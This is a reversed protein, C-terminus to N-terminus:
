FHPVFTYFLRLLNFLYSLKLPLIPYMINNLSTLTLCKGLISSLLWERWWVWKGSCTCGDMGRKKALARMVFKVCGAYGVWGDLIVVHPQLLKMIPTSPINIRYWVKPIALMRTSYSIRTSGASISEATLGVNNGNSKKGGGSFDFLACYCYMATLYYSLTLTENNKEVRRWLKRSQPNTSQTSIEVLNLKLIEVALWKKCSLKEDNGNQRKDSIIMRVVVSM